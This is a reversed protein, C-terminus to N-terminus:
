CKMNIDLKLVTVTAAAAASATKLWMQSTMSWFLITKVQERKFLLDKSTAVSVGFNNKLYLVIKNKKENYETDTSQQYKKDKM